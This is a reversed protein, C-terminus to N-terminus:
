QPANVKGIHQVPCLILDLQYAQGNNSFFKWTLQRQGGQLMSAACETFVHLAMFLVLMPTRLQQTLHQLAGHISHM